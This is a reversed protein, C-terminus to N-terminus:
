EVADPCVLLIYIKCDFKVLSNDYVLVLVLFGDSSRGVRQSTKMAAALLGCPFALWVEDLGCSASMNETYRTPASTM